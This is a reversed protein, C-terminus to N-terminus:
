AEPSNRDHSIADYTPGLLVGCRAYGVLDVWSDLHDPDTCLRSVKLAAMCLAVDHSTVDVDLIASWMHAIRAFSERPSGYSRERDHTVSEAARDFAAIRTEREM